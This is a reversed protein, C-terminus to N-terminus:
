ISKTILDRYVHKVPEPAFLLRDLWCVVNYFYRRGSIYRDLLQTLEEGSCSKLLFALAIQRKSQDEDHLCSELLTNIEPDKADMLCGAALSFINSDEDALLQCGIDPSLRIANTLVSRQTEGHMNKAATLLIPIDTKDGLKSVIQAASLQVDEYYKSSTEKLYRRAIPLDQQEGHSALGALASVIYRGRVFEDLKGQEEERLQQAAKDIAKEQLASPLDKLERRLSDSIKDIMKELHFKRLSEFREDLDQRILNSAEAFHHEAIVRYAIHGYIGYWDIEKLLDEYTYSKYLDYIISDADVGGLLVSLTLLRNSTGDSEKLAENIERPNFREGLSILYSYALARVPVSDQKILSYAAERSLAKRDILVHTVFRRFGPDPHAIAGELLSAALQDEKGKLAALASYPPSDMKILELFAEQPNQKVKINWRAREIAHNLDSGACGSISDICALDQATGNEAFYELIAKKVDSSSTAAIENFLDFEKFHEPDPRSHMKTLLEISHVRISSETDRRATYWLFLEVVNPKDSQFWFWGPVVNFSDSILSRWVLKSEWGVPSLQQRFSYLANMEHITLLEDTCRRGFLTKASLYLRATAFSDVSDPDHESFDLEGSKLAATVTEIADTIQRVSNEPGGSVGDRNKDDGEVPEKQQIARNAEGDEPLPRNQQWNFLATLVSQVAEEQSSFSARQREKEVRARFAQQKRRRKASEIANGPIPFDEPSVFVLRSIGLEVATDYEIESYSREDDEPSSGYIPGILAVLCDCQKVKNICNDLSPQDRAGFDEMKVCRIGDLRDIAKAIADRYAILNGQVSSLFVTTVREM